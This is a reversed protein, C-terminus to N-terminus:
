IVFKLDGIHEKIKQRARFLYVKVQSDNLQIMEGIEAYSYGEYDKLLLISRQTESLLALADHIIKKLDPSELEYSPEEISVTGSNRNKRGINDMCLRYTTTFLWSKVKAFDIDEKHQWLKMFAEQTIDKATTRDMLLKDAFRCVRNDYDRVAQNYLNLLEQKSM